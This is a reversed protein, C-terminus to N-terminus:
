NSNYVNQGSNLYKKSVEAVGGEGVASTIHSRERVRFSLYM